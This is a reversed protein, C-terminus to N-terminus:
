RNVASMEVKLVVRQDRFTATQKLPKYFQNTSKTLQICGSDGFGGKKGGLTSVSHILVLLPPFLPNDMTFMTFPLLFFFRGVRLISCMSFCCVTFCIAPYRHHYPWYIHHWYTVCHLFMEANKYLGLAVTCPKSQLCGCWVMDMKRWRGSVAKRKEAGATKM